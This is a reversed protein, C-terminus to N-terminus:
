DNDGNEVESHEGASVNNGTRIESHRIEGGTTGTQRAFYM